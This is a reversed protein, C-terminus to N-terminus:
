DFLDIRKHSGPPWPYTQEKYAKELEERKKKAKEAREKNYRQVDPIWRVEIPEPNDFQNLQFVAYSKIGQDRATQADPVVIVKDADLGNSRAFKKMDKRLWDVDLGTVREPSYAFVQQKDNIESTSFVRAVHRFAMDSAADIDGGTLTYYEQELAMYSSKMAASPKPAGRGPTWFSIDFRNDSDMISQLRETTDKVTHEQSYETRLLKRKEPPLTANERAVKVAEDLPAGARYMSSVTGYIASQKTGLGDVSLPSERELVEYANSLALVKDPSGLVALRRFDSQLADPMINTKAALDVGVEFSPNEDYYANVAKRHDKDKPDLPENNTLAWDVMASGYAADRKEQAVREAIMMLEARRSETIVEPYADYAQDIELFGAEGREVQVKLDGLIRGEQHARQKEFEAISDSYASELATVAASRKEGELTGTYEDSKLHQLTGAILEPNDSYRVKEIHGIEFEQQAAFRMDEKEADSFMLAGNIMEDVTNMDGERAITYVDDEFSSRQETNARVASKVIFSTHESTAKPQYANKFYKYSDPSLEKKAASDIRDLNQKFITPAEVADPNTEADAKAKAMEVMARGYYQTAKDKQISDYIETIPEVVAGLADMQARNAKVPTWPSPLTPKQAQGYKIDPFEM